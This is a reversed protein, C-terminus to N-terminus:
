YKLSGLQSHSLTHTTCTYQTHTHISHIHTHIYQIHTSHMYVTYTHQAHISHMHTHTHSFLRCPGFSAIAVLDPLYSRCSQTATQNTDSVSSDSVNLSHPLRHTLHHSIVKLELIAVGIWMWKGRSVRRLLALPQHTTNGQM